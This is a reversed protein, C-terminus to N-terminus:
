KNVTTQGCTVTDLFWPQQFPLSGFRFLVETLNGALWFAGVCPWVSECLTLVNKETIYAPVLESKEGSSVLPLDQKIAKMGVM